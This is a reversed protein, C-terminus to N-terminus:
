PPASNPRVSPCSPEAGAERAPARDHRDAVGVERRFRRRGRRSRRRSARRRSRRSTPRKNRRSRGIRGALRDDIMVDCESDLGMSRNNINASGVRICSTTSSWSRPTSTSTRHRGRDGAHLDPLPRLPGQARAGQGARRPGPGMVSEDLWGAGTKPNVISSNPATRNPRAAQVSRRPSSGRPSINPRSTSKFRRAGAVLDVFAAEIERVQPGAAMSPRPDPRHRHRRRRLGAGARGALRRRRRRRQDAAGRDGGGLATRALEGLALAAAGDLAM